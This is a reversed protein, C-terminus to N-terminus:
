GEMLWYRTGKLKGKIEVKGQTAMKELKDRIRDRSIESGVRQHIDSIASGPYIRLDECLLEFLRHEEINKLDTRGKFNIQRLYDPNVFYEVGKTKGKWKVLGLDPLRGLWNRIGNQQDLSLIKSFHLASLTTHQAILGLCIIERQRLQFEQSARKMLEYIAPSTIHKEIIVQVRDEKEIPRPLPKASAMQIEYMRDYGSGEREMLKLDYFVQALHTNRRITKHLINQANVGIPFTGPNHIELRDPHLNIFIDGRTTYPRHVLANALLERIIGEAYDPLFDPYLGERIEIGEKWDPIKTWVEEILEQPNLRYDDWVIKNVKEGSENYKIFQIVPAYLLKARDNRKGVWLVGLNTLFGSETMLYHDLVEPPSMSKVFDTVRESQQLQAIFAELKQEDVEVVPVKTRRTEWVFSPKDTLLRSLEDPPLPKCDTDIRYYYQGTTTSAITSASHLIHLDIYQGGNSATVITANTSVNITLEAMRRRLTAELGTPIIQEPPPDSAEDAIGIYIHGGRTNAFCVCDKALEQWQANKGIITDLRKKDFQETEQM